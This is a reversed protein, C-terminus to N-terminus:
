KSHATSSDMINGPVFGASNKMIIMRYIGTDGVDNSEHRKKIIVNVLQM